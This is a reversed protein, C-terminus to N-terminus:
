WGSDAYQRLVTLAEDALELINALNAYHAGQIRAMGAYLVRAEPNSLLREVVADAEEQSVLLEMAWPVDEDCSLTPGCSRTYGEGFLAYRTQLGLLEPMLLSLESQTDRFLGSFQEIWDITSYYRNLADKAETSRILRLNGTSMLDDITTTSYSPYSFYNGFEVARVLDTPALLSQGSEYIALIAQAYDARAETQVQINEIAARDATLDDILRNIYELETSRDAREQRWGDAALAIFVGVVVIVLEGLGYRWKLKLKRLLM